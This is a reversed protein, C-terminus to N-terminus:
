EKWSKKEQKVHGKRCTGNKFQKQYLSKFHEKPTSSSLKLQSFQFPLCPLPKLHFYFPIVLRPVSFYPLEETIGIARKMFVKM